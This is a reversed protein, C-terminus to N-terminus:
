TNILAARSGCKGECIRHRQEFHGKQPNGGSTENKKLIMYLRSCTLHTRYLFAGFILDRFVDIKGKRRRREQKLQWVGKRQRFFIHPLSVALFFHPQPLVRHPPTPGSSSIHDLNTNSSTIVSIFEVRPDTTAKAINGDM